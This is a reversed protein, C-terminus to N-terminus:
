KDLERMISAMASKRRKITKVAGQASFVRKKKKAQRKTLGAGAVAAHPATDGIGPRTKDGM